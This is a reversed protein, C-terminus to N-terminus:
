IVLKEGNAWLFSGTSVVNQGNMMKMSYSVFIKKSLQSTLCLSPPQMTRQAPKILERDAYMPLAPHSMDQMDGINHSNLSVINQFPSSALM